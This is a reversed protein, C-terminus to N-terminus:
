DTEAENTERRIVVLTTSRICLLWFVLALGAVTARWSWVQIMDLGQSVTKAETQSVADDYLQVLQSTDATSLYQGGGFGAIREMARHDPLFVENRDGEPDGWAVTHVTIGRDRALKATTESELQCNPQNSCEGDSLLIIICPVALQNGAVDAPDNDGYKSILDSTRICNEVATAMAAETATEHKLETEALQGIQARLESGTEVVEHSVVNERDSFTILQRFIGAPAQDVTAELAEVVGALRSIQNGNAGTVDVTSMSQSTDIVWSLLSQETVTQGPVAPRSASGISWLMAGILVIAGIHRPLERFRRDALGPLTAKETVRSRFIIQSFDKRRTIYIYALGFPVVLTALWYPEQLDLFWQIVTDM